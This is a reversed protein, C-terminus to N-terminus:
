ESMVALNIVLAGLTGIAGGSNFKSNRSKKVADKYGDEYDLRDKTDLETLYRRPVETNQNSVILYGIGWGIFGLLLGSALGGAVAGGGNYDREAQMRGEYYYDKAKELKLVTVPVSQGTQYFERTMGIKRGILGIESM